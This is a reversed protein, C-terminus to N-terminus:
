AKPFIKGILVYYFIRRIIEFLLVEILLAPAAQKLFEILSNPTTPTPQQAPQSKDLVFGLDHLSSSSGIEWPAQGVPYSAPAHTDSWCILVTTIIVSILGLAYLVKFVRYWVKKNLEEISTM